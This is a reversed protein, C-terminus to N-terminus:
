QLRRFYEDIQAILPPVDKTVTDWVIAPKVEHYGHVLRHRMGTIRRWPLALSERTTATVRGAAEGIISLRYAVADQLKVDLVFVDLTVGALHDLAIQASDRM